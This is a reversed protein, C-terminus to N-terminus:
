PRIMPADHELIAGGYTCTWVLLVKLVGVSFIELTDITAFWDDNLVHETRYLNKRSRNVATILKIQEDYFARIAYKLRSDLVVAVWNFRLSRAIKEKTRNKTEKDLFKDNRM